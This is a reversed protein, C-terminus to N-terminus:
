FYALRPAERGAMEEQEKRLRDGKIEISLAATDFEKLEDASFQIAAAGLNKRYVARLLNSTLQLQTNM